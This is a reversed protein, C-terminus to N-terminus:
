RSDLLARNRTAPIPLGLYRLIEEARHRYTHRQVTATYGRMRYSHNRDENRLLEVVLDRFHEASDAVLLEDESYLERYAPVADVVVCGFSGMVKFVRENIQGKLLAVTPENIAPSVRAQRYLSAEKDRELMGRYGSYPWNSYGYITLVNEFQRLYRDIQQGKSQWYGGVFAMQVDAFETFDPTERVYVQTDCALPLSHVTIGQRGWEEFFNLGTPVTATFGFDPQLALIKRKVGSPLRWPEPNLAHQAFFRDSDRFWPYLWVLCRHDRLRRIADNNLQHIDGGFFMCVPNPLGDVVDAIDRVDVILYPIGLQEFGHCYGMRCTMMADPRDQDFSSGVAMVFTMPGSQPDISGTPCTIHARRFRSRVRSLM